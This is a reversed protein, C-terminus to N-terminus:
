ATPPTDGTRDRRVSPLYYQEVYERVMRRATFRQGAARIAYKMMRLWGLPLGHADREYFLPVVERELLEYFRDATWADAEHGPAPPAIAWGNHGNFGEEWWGDVTSLQPVGNIAAKMGSTGSAEMPVRPLNLWLDVGQVLRHALHMDYDELFVIRGEFEPDRAFQYIRQLIQKGPSDAPHAKGAFVLQVPRLPDTLVRRLREPDHFPLDARKYTAFRRAFGITLAQPDLLVGAGVLQPLELQRATFKARTAERTARLLEHKLIQHARWLAADDMALVGDWTADDDLRLGWDSGITQDLLEMMANATWTALHVGNTVHGIPVEAPTREPWLAGWLERTVHGHRMAVANARGALRLALATMHFTGHDIEPHHGLAFLRDRPVGFGDLYSGACVEVQAREFMDHGAPVPTHTTFTTTCRVAALAEDFVVGADTMERVRELLMFGAHGENAHWAAPTIGLARLVRVGGVGLLWEQRLRHEPGGAYLRSLLPRDAPDNDEIDTDLLYVPVRGVSLRWVKIYVTRGAAEVSTLYERGDVGPVPTLPTTALNVRDNSDQQWGDPGVRQDFYGERYMIGIGVLPVGLDSATKCHDGALVGLGGSYIPVSSHFGFEACFYAIVQHRSEPFNRAFWTADSSAEGRFWAMVSDYHELFLPEAACAALREASVRQLLAIPNHRSRTWIPDDVMKFLARAERSWGWALNNAIDALGAIRAPLTTPDAPM